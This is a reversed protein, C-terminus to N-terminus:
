GGMRELSSHHADLYDDRGMRDLFAQALMRKQERERRLTERIGPDSWRRGKGTGTAAPIREASTAM